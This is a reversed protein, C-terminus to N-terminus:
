ALVVFDINHDGLSELVKSEQKVKTQPTVPLCHFPIGYAEVRPALDLHNSIVLPIRVVLESTDWRWLLDNLCHDYRSVMIAMRKPDDSYSSRWDMDHEGALPAFVDALEERGLGFGEGEIEM